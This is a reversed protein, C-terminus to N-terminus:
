DFELVVDCGCLTSKCCLTPMNGESAPQSSSKSMVSCGPDLQRRVASSREPSHFVSGSRSGSSEEESARKITVALCSSAKGSDEGFGM